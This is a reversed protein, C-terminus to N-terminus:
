GPEAYIVGAENLAIVEAEDFGLEGLITANHEGLSPTHAHINSPTQAFQAPPRPTRVEGALPHDYTWLAEMAQIQPDDVVQDRLNIRSYPVDEAEMRECLEDTTFRAYAEDMLERMISRNRARAEFTNFREDEILSEVGLARFAGMVEVQQVPMTAIWGDKTKRLFLSHDIYPVEEIGDALFTKNTMVDPWLFYLNADLM